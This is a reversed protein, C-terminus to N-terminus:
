SVVVYTGQEDEELRIIRGAAWDWKFLRITKANIGHGAIRVIVRGDTFGGGVAFAPWGRSQVVGATLLGVPAAFGLLGRLVDRRRM